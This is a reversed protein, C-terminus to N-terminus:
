WTIAGSVSISGDPMVVVLYETVPSASQILNLDFRGSADSIVRGMKGTVDINLLVGNTGIALASTTATATLTHGDASDSLYFTAAAVQAIAKGQADKLQVAVNITNVSKTGITFTVLNFLEWARAAASKAPLPNLNAIALAAIIGLCVCVCTLIFM